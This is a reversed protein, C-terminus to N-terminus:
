TATPIKRTLRIAHIFETRNTKKKREKKREERFNRKQCFIVTFTLSKNGDKVDKRTPKTIVELHLHFSTERPYGLDKHYSRHLLYVCSVFFMCWGVGMQLHRLSCPFYYLFRSRCCVAM